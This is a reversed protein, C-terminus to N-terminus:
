NEDYDPGHSPFPCRRVFVEGRQRHRRVRATWARCSRMQLMRLLPPLRHYAAGSDSNFQRQYGDRLLPSSYSIFAVSRGSTHARPVDGNRDVFLGIPQGADFCRLNSCRDRRQNPRIKNSEDPAVNGVCSEVAQASKLILRQSGDTGTASSQACGVIELSVRQVLTIRQTSRNSRLRLLFEKCFAKSSELQAVRASPGVAPVGHDRLRDAVGAAVADDRGVVALDVAHSRAAQAVARPNIPDVQPLNRAVTETGANGPAVLVERVRSSAALKWTLAHERAGSGVVMVRM